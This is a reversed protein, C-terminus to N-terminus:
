PRPSATIRTELETLRERAQEVRRNEQETMLTVAARLAQVAGATDDTHDLSVALTEYTEALDDGTYGLTQYSEIAQRCLAIATDHRRLGQWAVAADVLAGAEGIRDKAQRRLLLGQEAHELAHEHEGFQVCIWSLNCLAVAELRLLGADRAVAASRLFFERAEPLRDQARRIGGLGSLGSALRPPDRLQEALTLARITAAEADDLRALKILSSTLVNLLYAEVERRGCVAASRVGTDTAQLHLVLAAPGRSMLFRCYLALTMAVEHSEIEAAHVTAAVLNAQERRLWDMAEPRDAFTMANTVRGVDPLHLASSSTAIGAARDADQAARAYWTLMRQCAEDCDQPRDDAEARHRAYAHLLDHVRYRKRGVPEILHLDALSELIRYAAPVDESTLAAAAHIGLETGPHLGLRRFLGAQEKSLRTYSWDFVSRVGAQGHGFGDDAGHQQQERIDDVVECLELQPRAAARTAAVRVALPLGACMGVLEDAASPEAEVRGAGLIGHLLARSEAASFMDVGVRQAGEVVVLEALSARSTVVTVCTASGPLLPRVQEADAANDLVILMRREALLSRYLGAQADPAAPIHAEAIGLAPLFSAVVTVPDLPASPGYGRLNMFLTGDPFREQVRHAWRVVLSTKGGGGAGDVVAVPVAGDHRQGAELLDDLAELQQERGIFDRVVPPLQRPIPFKRGKVDAASLLGDTRVDDSGEAGGHKCLRSYRCDAQM